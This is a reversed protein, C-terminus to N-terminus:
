LNGEQKPWESSKYAQGIISICNNGVFLGTESTVQANLITDYSTNKVADRVANSLFASYGCSKGRVTRGKADKPIVKGELDGISMLGVKRSLTHGCGALLLIFCLLYLYHRKM